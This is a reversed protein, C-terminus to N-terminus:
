VYLLVPGQTQHEEITSWFQQQELPAASNLKPDFDGTLNLDLIPARTGEVAKEYIRNDIELGALKGTASIFLCRISVTSMVCLDQLSKAQKQDILNDDAEDFILIVTQNSAEDLQEM